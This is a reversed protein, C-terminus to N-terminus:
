RACRRAENSTSEDGVALAMVRTVASNEPLAIESRTVRPADSTVKLFSNSLSRIDFEKSGIEGYQAPLAGSAQTM